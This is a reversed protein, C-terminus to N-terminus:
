SRHTSSFHGATILTSSAAAMDDWFAVFIFVFDFPTSTRRSRSSSSYFKFAYYHDHAAHGPCQGLVARHLFKMRAAHGSSVAPRVVIHAHGHHASPNMTAILIWRCAHANIGHKQLLATKAAGHRLPGSGRPGSGGTGIACACACGPRERCACM